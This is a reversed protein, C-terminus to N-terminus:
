RIIRLKDRIPMESEYVRKVGDGLAKEITRIYKVLHIMGQPEVSASQDSGWMARDLTVHREVFCAGLAVAAATTALGVEHGSYGIPCDYTNDLTTIVKLNLEEPCSPYTSTCHLLVLDEQGLVKVAHDIEEMTSMGTALIVPKGKNRVHRLLNDDTISASAIKFCPPGFEDIFDVSAKDWGSAFWLIGRDRCHQDIARYGQEGFELGRKLDGNTTGFPSERPRALEESTYVIEVTRKQFKVADCGSLVAADILKKAIELDGNHNIGIEAALFCPADPGVVKEGIRVHRKM